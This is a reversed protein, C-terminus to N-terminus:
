HGSRAIEEAPAGEAAAGVPRTPRVLQRSLVVTVALGVAAAGIAILFAQSYDGSAEGLQAALHPAFYASVSYASFALGYNMGQYRLGFRTSVLSPMVGMVGGFCVGLGFVGAMFGAANGRVVILLGLFAAVFAFILVLTRATGLTDSVSGLVFGGTMKGAAYASVAFAATTATMGYMAVGIPSANAAIMLGSFAGCVFVVFIAWFAGTLMMRQPPVATGGGSPGAAAQRTQPVGAPWFGTPAVRIVVFTLGAVVVFVGGLVVMAHGVGAGSILARAMPAVVIAGAGQSGVSLGAALGRKDPFFRIANALLASYALGQGLGAVVGYGVILQVLSTSAGSLMWGVGLMVGGVLATWRAWGKDVLWGGLVMPIPSIGANVSYALLVGDLGFGKEQVLPNRLVSFTYLAGLAFMLVCSAVLVAKRNM